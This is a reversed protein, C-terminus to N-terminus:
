LQTKGEYLLKKNREKPSDLSYKGGSAEVYVTEKQSKTRLRENARCAEGSDDSDNGEAEVCRVMKGKESIEMAGDRDPAGKIHRRDRSIRVGNEFMSHKSQAEM